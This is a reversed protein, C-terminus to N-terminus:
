KTINSKTFAEKHMLEKGLYLIYTYAGVKMDAIPVSVETWQKIGAKKWPKLFEATRIVKKSTDTIHISCFSLDEAQSNLSIKLTDSTLKQINVNVKINRTQSFSLSTFLILTISILIKM